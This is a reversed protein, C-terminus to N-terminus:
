RLHLGPIYFIAYLFVWVIDIFHWYLGGLDITTHYAASFSGLATRYLLVLLMGIGITMHLAHLGTMIFYFVFFMQVKAFNEHGHYEFWFGPIKHDQYHLYYETFKIGLFMAGIVMTAILFTALLRRNGTEASHVALVMTFSSCILVATNVAGLIIEMEKSGEDFAQPNSLRYVTYAMFLGGFLMVETILFVWMGISATERQQNPTAFQERLQLLASGSPTPESM